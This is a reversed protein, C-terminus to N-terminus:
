QCRSMIKEAARLDSTLNVETHTKKGFRVEKLGDEISNSAKRFGPLSCRMEEVSYDVQPIQRGRGHATDFAQRAKEFEAKSNNIRREATEYEQEGLSRAGETQLKLGRVGHYLGTFSPIAWLTIEVLVKQTDRITGGNLGDVPGEEGEIEELKDEIRNGNKTLRDLRDLGYEIADVSGEYQEKEFRRESAWCSAIVQHILIRQVVLLRGLETIAVLHDIESGPRGNRDDSQLREKLNDATKLLRESDFAEDFTPVSFVFEDDEAIPLVSLGEYISEIGDVYGSVTNQDGVSQATSEPPQETSTKTPHGSDESSRENGCGAIAPSLAAIGGLIFSRRSTVTATQSSTRNM